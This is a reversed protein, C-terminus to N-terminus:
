RHAGGGPISGPGQAEFAWTSAVVGHRFGYERTNEGGKRGRGGLAPGASGKAPI